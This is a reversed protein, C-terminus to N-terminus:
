GIVPMVASFCSANKVGTSSPFTIISNEPLSSTLPSGSAEENGDPPSRAVKSALPYVAHSGVDLAKTFSSVSQIGVANQEYVPAIMINEGVLLQDEVRRALSDQGYLFGLPRFMMQNRLASKMFESYLYPLLRYRIKLGNYGTSLIINREDVICAGVQTNPDKSRKAALVAVGMFYEDWSIYEKRKM